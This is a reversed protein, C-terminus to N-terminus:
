TELPPEPEPARLLKLYRELRDFAAEPTVNNEPTERRGHAVWNRFRRVQNVEETLNIDM